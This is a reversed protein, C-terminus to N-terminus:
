PCYKDNHHHQRNNEENHVATHPIGLRYRHHTNYEHSQDTNHKTDIYPPPIMAWSSSAASLLLHSHATYM